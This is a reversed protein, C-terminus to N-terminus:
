EASAADPAWFDFFNFWNYPSEICLAELLMVYRQMAALIRAEGDGTAVPGRFDALEVFRLEYRKGGLYLGAMFVVQRRLLAALRFPGDSFRAPEGLFPLQRTHSHSHPHSISHSRETEGPLTRDALLGAIGGGDLWRRLSLMAGARGLAITHLQAQPAIAALTRTILRANDEFMLMAVKVGREQGIARLAEFSGLHAGVLMVGDGQAIAADLVDLGTSRLDFERLRDQLFYVRDLIAGAFHHIHRYVDRLAAPRHLARTLYARSARRAKGNAILFYMAIPHLVVRAAPRGASVAIWRMVRLVWLSGRERQETWAARQRSGKQTPEHTPEHSREDSDLPPSM